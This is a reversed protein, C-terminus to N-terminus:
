FIFVGADTVYKRGDTYDIEFRFRHTKEQAPKGTSELSWNMSKLRLDQNLYYTQLVSDFPNVFMSVAYRETFQFLDNLSTNKPHQSDFDRDSLIEFRSIQEKSGLEGPMCPSCAYTSSSFFNYQVPKQSTYYEPIFNVSLHLTDETIKTTDSAILLHGSKDSVKPEHYRVYSCDGEHGCKRCSNVVTDTLALFGLFILSRSFRNMNM